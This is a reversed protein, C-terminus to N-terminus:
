RGAAGRVAPFDPLLVVVVDGAGAECDVLHWRKCAECTALMRDPSDADPQHIDLPEGCGLCLVSSLGDPSVPVTTFRLTVTLERGPGPGVPRGAKAGKDM